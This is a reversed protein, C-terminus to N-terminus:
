KDQERSNTEIWSLAAQNAARSALTDGKAALARDLIRGAQEPDAMIARAVRHQSMDIGVERFLNLFRDLQLRLGGHGAAATGAREGAIELDNSLNSQTTSGMHPRKGSAQFAELGQALRAAAQPSAAGVGAMLNARQEPNGALNAALTSAGFTNPGERLDRLGQASQQGLYARTLDNGSQGLMGVTQRTEDALGPPPRQPYLAGTQSNLAPQGEASLPRAIRGVQGGTLRDNVTESFNRHIDDAAARLSGPPTTLETIQQLYPAIVGTQRRGTAGVSGPPLQTNEEAQGVIGALRGATLPGPTTLENRLARLPATVSPAGNAITQDMDQIIQALRQPPVPRNEDARYLPGSAATRAQEAQRIVGQAADQAGLSVDTPPREPGLDNLVQAMVARARQPREAMMPRIHEVGAPRREVAGQLGGLQSVGNTAYDTQEALTTPFGIDRNERLGQVIRPVPTNEPIRRGILRSTPTSHPSLPGLVAGSGAGGVLGAVNRVADTDDPSLGARQAVGGAIDSAGQSALGSAAGVGIRQLTPVIGGEVGGTLAGTATQIGADAYRGIPTQPHYLPQGTANEIGTNIQGSTPARGVMSQNLIGRALINADHRSVGFKQMAWDAASKVMERTDGVQGAFSTVGRLMSPLLTNLVDQGASPVPAAAPIDHFLNPAPGQYPTGTMALNAGLRQGTTVQGVPKAPAIDAFLDVPM